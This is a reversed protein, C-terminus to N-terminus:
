KLISYETQDNESNLTKVWYELTSMPQDILHVYQTEVEELKLDGVLQFNASNQKKLNIPIAIIAMSKPTKFKNKLEEELKVTLDNNTLISNSYIETDNLIVLENQKSKPLYFVIFDTNLCYLDKARKWKLNLTYFDNKHSIGLDISKPSTRHPLFEIILLVFCISFVLVSFYRLLKTKKNWVM